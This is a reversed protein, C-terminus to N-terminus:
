DSRRCCHDWCPCPHNGWQAAPGVTRPVPALCAVIGGTEAVWRRKHLLQVGSPRGTPHSTGVGLVACESSLLTLYLWRRPPLPSEDPSLARPRCTYNVYLLTDRPRSSMLNVTLSPDPGPQGVLVRRLLRHPRPLGPAFPCLLSLPRTLDEPVLRTSIQRCEQCHCFIGLEHSKLLLFRVYCGQSGGCRGPGGLREQKGCSQGKSPVGARGEGEMEGEWSLLRFCGPPSAHRHPPGKLGDTHSFIIDLSLQGSRPAVHPNGALLICAGSAPVGVQTVGWRTGGM